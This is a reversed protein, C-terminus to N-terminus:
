CVAEMETIVCVVQFRGSFNFLRGRVKPPSLDAFYVGLSEGWYGVFTYLVLEDTMYWDCFQQFETPYGADVSWNLSEGGHVIASPAAVQTIVAGATKTVVVRKPPVYPQYSFQEPLSTGNLTAHNVM